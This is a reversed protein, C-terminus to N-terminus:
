AAQKLHGRLRSAYVYLNEKSLGYKLAVDKTSKRGYVIEILAMKTPKPARMKKLGRAVQERTWGGGVKTQRSPASPFYVHEPDNILQSGQERSMPDNLSGCRARRRDPTLLLKQGFAALAASAPYGLKLLETLEEHPVAAIELRVTAVGFPRLEGRCPPPIVRDSRNRLVREIRFRRRDSLRRPAWFPVHGNVFDEATLLCRLHETKQLVVALGGKHFITKVRGNNVCVAACLLPFPHFHLPLNTPEPVRFRKPKETGM